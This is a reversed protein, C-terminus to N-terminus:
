RSFWTMVESTGGEMKYEYVRETLSEVESGEAHGFKSSMWNRVSLDRMSSLGERKRKESQSVHGNQM